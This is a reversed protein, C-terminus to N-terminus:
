KPDDRRKRREPSWVMLNPLRNDGLYFVYGYYKLLSLQTRWLVTQTVVIKKKLYKIVNLIKINIYSKDLIGNRYKVSKEKIKLGSHLSWLQLKL